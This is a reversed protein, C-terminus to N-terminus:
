SELTEELADLSGLAEDLTEDAVAEVPSVDTSVVKWSPMALREDLEASAVDVAVVEEVVAEEAAEDAVVEEEAVVVM